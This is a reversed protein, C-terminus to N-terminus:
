KEAQFPKVIKDPISLLEVYSFFLYLYTPFLKDHLTFVQEKESELDHKMEIGKRKEM